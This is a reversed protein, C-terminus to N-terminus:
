NPSMDWKTHEGSLYMIGREDTLGSRADVGLGTMGGVGQPYDDPARRFRSAYVFCSALFVAMAACFVALLVYM